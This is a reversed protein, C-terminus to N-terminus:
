EEWQLDLLLTINNQIRTIQAPFANAGTMYDNMRFMVFGMNDDVGFDDDFLNIYYFENLTPMLFFPSTYTYVLPLMTQQVNNVVGSVTTSLVAYTPAPGQLEYYVDPGDSDWGGGSPNNPPFATITVKKIRVKTYPPQITINKTVTKSGNANTATLTIAYTGGVNFNISPNTLTSTLGSTGFNWSYSTAGQSTNTFAVTVPARGSSPTLTFDAVPLAGTVVVNKTIKNVGGPGTATLTVTLSGAVLATQVPNKETSTIGGGFDWLYSTANLSTNTFTVVLPAVGTAPTFTFDAVPAAPTPESKKCSTFTTAVMFLVLIFNLSKKM